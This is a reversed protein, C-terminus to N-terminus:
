NNNGLSHNSGSGSKKSCSEPNSSSSSKRHPSENTNNSNSHSLIKVNETFQNFIQDCEETDKSHSQQIKRM